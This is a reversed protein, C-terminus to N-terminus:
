RLFPVKDLLVLEDALLLLACDDVTLSRLTWIADYAMAATM